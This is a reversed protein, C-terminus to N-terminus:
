KVAYKMIWKRRIKREIEPVIFGSKQPNSFRNILLGDLHDQEHCWVRAKDDRLFETHITSALDQYQVKVWNPRSISFTQEPLSSGSDNRIIISKLKNKACIKIFKERDMKVTIHSEYM